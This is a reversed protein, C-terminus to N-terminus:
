SIRGCPIAPVPRGVPAGGGGLCGGGGVPAVLRGLALADLTSWGGDTISPGRGGGGPPMPGVRERGLDDEEETDPGPIPVGRPVSYTGETLLQTLPGRSVLAQKSQWTCHPCVAAAM